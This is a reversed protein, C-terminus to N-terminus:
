AGLERVLAMAQKMGMPRFGAALAHERKAGEERWLMLGRRLLISPPKRHQALDRRLRRAFNAHRSRDLWLATVAIGRSRCAALLDPAFIGEAIVVRASGLDVERTGEARSRSISYNPVTTRGSELLEGLALAARDCDWSRVDDWDVRDDVVPLGPADHDKYFDDLRFQAAGTVRGLRSKGSGSPGAM